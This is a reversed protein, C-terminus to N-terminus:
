RHACRVTRHRVPCGSNVEPACWTLADTLTQLLQGNFPKTKKSCRVTRHWVPCDPSRQSRDRCQESSNMQATPQQRASLRQEAPEGSLGTACRATRHIITSRAWFFGSLPQNAPRRALRVLCHGTGWFEACELGKSRNPAKKKASPGRLLFV